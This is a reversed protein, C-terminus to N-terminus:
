VLIGSRRKESIFVKVHLVKFHNKLEEVDGNLELDAWFIIAIKIPRGSFELHSGSDPKYVTGATNLGVGNKHYSFATKPTTHLTTVSGVSNVSEEGMRVQTVIGVIGSIIDNVKHNRRPLISKREEDKANEAYSKVSFYAFSPIIIAMSIRYVTPIYKYFLTELSVSDYIEEWKTNMGVSTVVFKADGDAVKTGSFMFPNNELDVGVHDSKGAMRSEDIQLSHGKLFLGDAPVQDGIKLCVVDGVVIDFVSIPRCRGNRVVEVQISNSAQFKDFKKMDFAFSIGACVLIVRIRPLLLIEMSFGFFSKKPPRIYTNKGFAEQRQLIDDSDAPIGHEVDTKLSFVLGEVGGLTALNALDREKVLQTLRYRGINTFSPSPSVVDIVHEATIEMSDQPESAKIPHSFARSSYSAAFALHWRKRSILNSISKLQVMSDMCHLNKDIISSM